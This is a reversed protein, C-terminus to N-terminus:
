CHKVVSRRRTSAVKEYAAHFSRGIPGLLAQFRDSAQQSTTPLLRYNRPIPTEYLHDGRRM